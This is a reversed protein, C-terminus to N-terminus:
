RLSFFIDKKKSINFLFYRQINNKSYFLRQINIGSM